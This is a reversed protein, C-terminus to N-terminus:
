VGLARLLIALEKGLGPGFFFMTGGILGISVMRLILRVACPGIVVRAGSPTKIDILPFKEPQGLM